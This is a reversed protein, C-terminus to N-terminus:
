VHGSMTSADGLVLVNFLAQVVLKQYKSLKPAWFRANKPPVLKM